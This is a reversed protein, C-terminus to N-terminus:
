GHENDELEGKQKLVRYCSNIDECIDVIFYENLHFRIHSHSTVYKNKNVVLSSLPRGCVVCLRPTHVRKDGKKFTHYREAIDFLNRRRDVVEKKTTLNNRRKM